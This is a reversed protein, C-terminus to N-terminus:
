SKNALQHSIGIIALQQVTILQIEAQKNGSSRVKAIADMLLAIIPFDQLTEYSIKDYYEANFAKRDIEDTGKVKYQDLELIYNRLLQLKIEREDREESSIESPLDGYKELLHILFTGAREITNNRIQEQVYAEAAESKTAPYSAHFLQQVVQGPTEPGRQQPIDTKPTTTKAFADMNTM